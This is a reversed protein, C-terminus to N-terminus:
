LDGNEGDDGPGSRSGVQVRSWTQDKVAEPSRAEGLPEPRQDCIAEFRQGLPCGTAPDFGPSPPLIPKKKM